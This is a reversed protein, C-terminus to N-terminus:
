VCAYGVLWNFWFVFWVESDLWLKVVLGLCSGNTIECELNTKGTSLGMMLVCDPAMEKAENCGGSTVIGGRCGRGAVM